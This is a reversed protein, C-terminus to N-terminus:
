VRVLAPFWVDTDAVDHEVAALGHQRVAHREAALAARMAYRRAPNLRNTLFPHVEHQQAYAQMRFFGPLNAAVM